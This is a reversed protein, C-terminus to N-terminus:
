RVSGANAQEITRDELEALCELAKEVTEAEEITLTINKIYGSVPIWGRERLRIREAIARIEASKALPEVEANRRMKRYMGVWERRHKQRGALWAEVQEATQLEIAAMVQNHIHNRVSLRFTSTTAEIAKPYMVEIYAVMDKGIDTAIAKILERSWPSVTEGGGAELEAIAATTVSNPILERM